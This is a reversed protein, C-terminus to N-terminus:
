ASLGNMEEQLPDAMDRLVPFQRLLSEPASVRTGTMLYKLQLGSVVSKAGPSNNTVVYVVDTARAINKIKEAWTKLEDVKYLYDYKAHRGHLRVYGVRSTAYETRELSAKSPVWDINCFGIQLEKLYRITDPNDWAEDRVEIALPYEKFRDALIALYERNLPTNRYSLPFQALVAALKDVSALSDLGERVRTENEQTPKISAASTPGPMDPAAHTFSHHLKATFKFGPKVADVRRAWVRAWEPKIYGYFSANIEVMDFCQALYTLPHERRRQMGLPYFIGEWDNYSWGATGVLIKTSSHMCHELGVQFFFM